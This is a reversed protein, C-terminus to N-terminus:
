GGYPHQWPARYERKLLKAAKPNDVIERTNHDWKIKQEAELAIMALQVTSTSNFGDEPQCSPQKRTKVAQLFDEMMLLGADSRAEHVQPESDKENAISIWRSDQLFVTGKEGYFFIGNAVEPMYEKAGWLRHRWFVPCTKFDFQVNLIDPTTIKDQLYYLGGSAQLSQPTTEDLVTRIADIHHIGWDVLHGNGYEKELRWSFHGIQPSYPLKPAPGCWWDWDLSPPPDQPTADRLKAVYHIQADVQVVRGINGQLIYERTDYLSQNMRRQFGIQVIQKSKKAAQVMVQGERIDYAVPKECYIDLGKDLAALFPLAHWQPPTAIIVAELGSIQLLQRYDKFTKPRAGQLENVTDASKNLHESDVDCLAICEIGGAKFAAKLDVMGYWGCGILGIKLKEATQTAAARSVIAPMALAGAAATGMFRRRNINIGPLGATKKNQDRQM